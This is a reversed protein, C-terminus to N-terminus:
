TLVGWEFLTYSIDDETVIKHATYSIYIDGPNGSKEYSIYYPGNKTSDEDNVVSTIFGSYLRGKKTNSHGVPELRDQLDSYTSLVSEGDIPDRYIRHQVTGNQVHTAQAM